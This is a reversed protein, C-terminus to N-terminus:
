VPQVKELCFIWMKGSKCPFIKGIDEAYELLSNESASLKYLSLTISQMQFHRVKKIERGCSSFILITKQPKVSVDM